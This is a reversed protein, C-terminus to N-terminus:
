PEEEDMHELGVNPGDVSPAPREDLEPERFKYMLEQPLFTYWSVWTNYVDKIFSLGINLQCTRMHLKLGPNMLALINDDILMSQVTSMSTSCTSVTEWGSEIHCPKLNIRGVPSLGAITFVKSVVHSPRSIAVVELVCEEEKVVYIKEGKCLNEYHEQGGVMVVATRFALPADFDAPRQFGRDRPNFSWQDPDCYLEAAALNFQGPFRYYCERSMPLDTRATKCVDLAGELDHEYEPCVDHHLIYKLFNEILDIALGV